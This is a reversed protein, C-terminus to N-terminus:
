IRSVKLASKKKSKFGKFLGLFGGKAPKLDEDADAQNDHLLSETHNQSDVQKLGFKSMQTLGADNASGFVLSHLTEEVKQPHSQEISDTVTTPLIEKDEARIKNMIKKDRKKPKKRGWFSFRKRETEEEISEEEQITAAVLSISEQLEFPAVEEVVSDTKQYENYMNVYVQNTESMSISDPMNWLYSIVDKWADSAPYGAFRRSFLKALEYVQINLIEETCLPELFPLYILRVDFNENVFIYEETLLFNSPNLFYDYSQALADTVNRMFTIFELPSMSVGELRRFGELTVDYSFTREGNLESATVLPIFRPKSYAISFFAIDDTQENARVTLYIRGSKVEEKLIDKCDLM